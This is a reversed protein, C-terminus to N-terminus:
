SGPALADLAQRLETTVLNRFETQKAVAGSRDPRTEDPFRIQVETQGPEWSYILMNIVAIPTRETRTASTSATPQPM